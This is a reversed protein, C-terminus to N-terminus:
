PSRAGTSKNMKLAQTFQEATQPGRLTRVLKGQPNIIYTVPLVPVNKIGYKKLSLDVVLPYHIKLKAAFKQMEYDSLNDYSAGLVMVRDRHTQYIHNLAPMEDLCPKCWGAWYNVIVWKGLYDQLNIPNGHSDHATPKDSCASLTLIFLIVIFKALHRM